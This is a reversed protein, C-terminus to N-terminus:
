GGKGVVWKELLEDVLESLERNKGEVLLAIKVRRHVDKRVYTTLGVFEPHQRKGSVKVREVSAAKKSRPKSAKKPTVVPTEPVQPVEQRLVEQSSTVSPVESLKLGAEPPPLVTTPLPLPPPVEEARAAQFLRDFKSM